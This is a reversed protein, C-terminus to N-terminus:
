VKFLKESLNNLKDGWFVDKQIREFEVDFVTSMAAAYVARADITSNLDRGEFLEKKKLGPWDTHVQAKKLLGGAMLIASGYGHETGNSSNQKITRGFETLTLVLTNDFAEKSMSSKLSRIINDYDSLCDAHAGDTAGQAAHTDFGDVEFVAVKPGDPKSLETGASSALIWADDSSRNNFDRTLIIELNDSLLKEDYEKYAKKILELTAPYPLSRGVPFYNNNMPVGRILLPMPLALALGQGTLGATKMGRGLWGTKEQYPIKGGSEMLNQGDFHSRGTYPINTAHVIAGKKEKWLEHFGELIPHLAFDSNLKITNDLILQKRRKEFNKDGVVPVACLADMGGRLMIVVLNKKVKNSSYVPIGSGALFLTALSGKLFNRRTIKM